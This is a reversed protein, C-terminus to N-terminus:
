RCIRAHREYGGGSATHTLTPLTTSTFTLTTDLDVPCTAGDAGSQMDRARDTVLKVTYSM